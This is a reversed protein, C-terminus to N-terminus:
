MRPSSLVMTYTGLQAKLCPEVPIRPRRWLELTRQHHPPHHGQTYPHLNSSPPQHCSVDAPRRLCTPCPPHRGPPRGLHSQPDFSNWPTLSLSQLIPGSNSLAHRPVDPADPGSPTSRTSVSSLRHPHHRVDLAYPVVDHLQPPSQHFKPQPPALYMQAVRPLHRAHLHSPPSSLDQLRCHLLM